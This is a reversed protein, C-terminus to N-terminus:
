RASVQERVQRGREEIEEPSLLEAKNIVVVQPRKILKKNYAKLEKNIMVYNEYPDGQTADVVHIYLRTREIHRLFDFGLGRYGFLGAYIGSRSNSPKGRLL